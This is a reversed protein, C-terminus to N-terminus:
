LKLYLRKYKEIMEGRSYRKAYKYIKETDNKDLYENISELLMKNDGKPIIKGHSENQIVEGSGGTDFTLVPVGCSLAELNTTPFNDKLTPNIFVRAKNYINALENISDTQEIHIIQNSIKYKQPLKGVVVLRSIEFNINEALWSITELGKDKSWINTVALITNKKAEEQTKPYFVSQDVGNNIVKLGFKSLYTSKVMENLWISPTVIIMKKKDLEALCRKKRKLNYKYNNIFLTKPYDKLDNRKGVYSVNDITASHGSFMWTDHLTMIIRGNFDNTLYEFLIELNLYYGHLNHLHIVDPRYTKIFKIFKKTANRSAFGHNDFLRTELVHEYIDIKKGIKYTNYGKKKAGRGFAICCEHGENSLSDYIDTCIRGTSGIGCVTNIMLVKM